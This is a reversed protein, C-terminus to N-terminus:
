EGGSAYLKLNRAMWVLATKNMRKRSHRKTYTRMIRDLVRVTLARWLTEILGKQVSVAHCAKREKKSGKQLTKHDMDFREFISTTILFCCLLQKRM